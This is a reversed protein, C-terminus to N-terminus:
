PCLPLHQPLSSFLICVIWHSASTQLTWAPASVPNQLRPRGGWRSFCSWLAQLPSQPSPPTLFSSILRWEPEAGQETSTWYVLPSSLPLVAKSSLQTPPLLSCQGCSWYLTEREVGGEKSQRQLGRKESTWDIDGGRQSCDNRSLRVHGNGSSFVCEAEWFDPM